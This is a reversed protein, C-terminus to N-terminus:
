VKIKSQDPKPVQSATLSLLIAGINICPKLYKISVIVSLSKVSKQEQSFFFLVSFFVRWFSKESTKCELQLIITM